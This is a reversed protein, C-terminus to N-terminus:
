DGGLRVSPCPPSPCSPSLPSGMSCSGERCLRGVAGRRTVGGPCLLPLAQCPSPLPPTWGQGAGCIWLATPCLIAGPLGWARPHLLPAPFGHRPALSHWGQASAQGAGQGHGEAMGQPQTIAHGLGVEGSPSPEPPFQWRSESGSGSKGAGDWAGLDLLLRATAAQAKPWTEPCIRASHCSSPDGPHLWDGAQGWSPGPGGKGYVGHSAAPRVGLTAGRPAARAARGPM